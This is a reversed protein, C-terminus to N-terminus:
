HCGHFPDDALKQNVTISTIYHTVMSFESDDSANSFNDMAKSMFSADDDNDTQSSLEICFFYCNILM